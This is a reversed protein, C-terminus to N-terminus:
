WCKLGAFGCIYCTRERLCYRSLLFFRRRRRWWWCFCCCLLLVESTAPQLWLETWIWSFFFFDLIIVGLSDSLLGSCTLYKQRWQVCWVCTSPSWFSVSTACARCKSYSCITVETLIVVRLDSIRFWLPQLLVLWLTIVTQEYGSCM